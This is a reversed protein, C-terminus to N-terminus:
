DEDSIERANMIKVETIAGVPCIIFCKKCGTCREQDIVATFESIKIAAPACVAACSGCIDCQEAIIRYKM